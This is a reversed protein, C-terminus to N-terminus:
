PSRVSELLDRAKEQLLKGEYGLVLMRYGRAIKDVAQRSNAAVGGLTLTRM